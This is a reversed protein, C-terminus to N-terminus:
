EAIDEDAEDWPGLDTENQKRTKDILSFEHAVNEFGNGDPSLELKNLVQNIFNIPLDTKYRPIVIVLKYKGDTSVELRVKVQSLNRIVSTRLNVEITIQNILSLKEKDEDSFVPKDQSFMDAIAKYSDFNQPTTQGAKRFEENTYFDVQLNIHHTQAEGHPGPIPVTFSFENDKTTSIDRHYIGNDYNMFIGHRNFMLIIQRILDIQNARATFEEPSLSEKYIDHVIDEASFDAAYENNKIIWNIFDDTIKTSIRGNLQNMSNLFKDHIIKSVAARFYASLKLAPDANYHNINVANSPISFSFATDETSGREGKSYFTVGIQKGNGFVFSGLFRAIGLPITKFLSRISEIKDENLTGPRPIRVFIIEGHPYVIPILLKKEPRRFTIGPTHYSTTQIIVNTPRQFYYKDDHLQPRSKDNSRAIIENVIEEESKQEIKNTTFIADPHAAKYEEIKFQLNKQGLNLIKEFYDLFLRTSSIILEAHPDNFNTLGDINIKLIGGNLSCKGLGKPYNNRITVNTAASSTPNIQNVNIIIEQILKRQEISWTQYIMRLTFLFYYEFKQLIADSEPDLEPNGDAHFRVTTSEVLTGDQRSYIFKYQHKAGGSILQVAPFDSNHKGTNIITSKPLTSSSLINKLLSEVQMFAQQRAEQLKNGVTNPSGFEPELYYNFFAYNLLQYALHHFKGDSEMWNLSKSGKGDRSVSQDPNLTTPHVRLIPLGSKFTNTFSKAFNKNFKIPNDNISSLKLPRGHLQALISPEVWSFVNELITAARALKEDATQTQDGFSALLEPTILFNLYHVQGDLIFSLSVFHSKESFISYFYNSQQTKPTVYYSDSSPMSKEVRLSSNPNRQQRISNLIDQYPAAKKKILTPDPNIMGQVEYSFKTSSGSTTLQKKEPLKESIPRKVPPDIETQPQKSFGKWVLGYDQGSRQVTENSKITNLLSKVLIIQYNFDDVFKHFHDQYEPKSTLDQLRPYQQVIASQALLDKIKQQVKKLDALVAKDQSLPSQAKSQVWANLRAATDNDFITKIQEGQPDIISFEAEVLKQLSQLFAQTSADMFNQRRQKALDRIFADFFGQIELTPDWPTALKEAYDQQGRVLANQARNVTIGKEQFAFFENLLKENASLNSKALDLSQAFEKLAKMQESLSLKKDHMIHKVRDSVFLHVAQQLHGPTLFDVKHPFNKQAAIVQLSNLKLISILQDIVATSNQTVNLACLAPDVNTPSTTAKSAPSTPPVMTSSQSTSLAWGASAHIALLVLIILHPFSYKKQQM